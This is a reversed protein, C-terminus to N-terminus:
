RDRKLVKPVPSESWARNQSFHVSAAFLKPDERDPRLQAMMRPDRFQRYHRARGTM